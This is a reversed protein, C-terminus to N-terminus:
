EGEVKHEEGEQPENEVGAAVIKSPGSAWRFKHRCARHGTQSNCLSLPHSFLSNPLQGIRLCQFNFAASITPQKEDLQMEVETMSSWDVLCTVGFIEFSLFFVSM